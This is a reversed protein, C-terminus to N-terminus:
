YPHSKLVFVPDKSTPFAEDDLQRCSELEYPRYPVCSRLCALSLRVPVRFVPKSIKYPNCLVHKVKRADFKWIVTKIFTKLKATDFFINWM